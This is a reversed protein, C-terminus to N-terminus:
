LAGHAAVHVESVSSLPASSATTSLPPHHLWRREPMKDKDARHADGVLRKEGFQEKIPSKGSSLSNWCAARIQETFVASIKLLDSM